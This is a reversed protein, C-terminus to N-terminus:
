SQEAVDFRSVFRRVFGNNSDLTRPRSAAAAATAESFTSDVEAVQTAELADVDVAFVGAAAYDATADAAATTTAAVVEAIATAAAEAAATAAEVKAVVAGEAVAEAVAEAKAEAEAVAKTARSLGHILRATLLWSLLACVPLPAEALLAETDLGRTARRSERWAGGASGESVAAKGDGLRGTM